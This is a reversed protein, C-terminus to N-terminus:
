KMDPRHNNRCNTRHTCMGVDCDCRPQLEQKEIMLKELEVDAEIDVDALITLTVESLEGASSKFSVGKVWDIPRGDLEVTGFGTESIKLKLKHVSM